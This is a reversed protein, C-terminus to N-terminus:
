QDDEKLGLRALWRRTPKGGSTAGTNDGAVPATSKQAAELSELQDEIKARDRAIRAREVSIDIEAQRLKGEWEEKLLRLKEREAAVVEDNALLQERKSEGDTGAAALQDRLQALEREKEAVVRDTTQIAEEIRLRESKAEPSDPDDAELLAMLQSKQTEWDLAGGSGIPAAPTQQTSQELQQELEAIRANAERLDALAMEHRRKFEEDGPPKNAAQEQSSQLEAKLQEVQRLLDAASTESANAASQQQNLDEALRENEQRLQALESKLSDADPRNALQSELATRQSASDELEQQLEAIRAAKTELESAQLETDKRATELQEELRTLQARTDELARNQEALERQKEDLANQARDREARAEDVARRLEGQEAAALKEIEERRTELKALEDNCRSEFEARQQELKATSDELERRQQDLEALKAQLRQERSDLDDSQKQANEQQQDLQETLEAIQRGLVDEIRAVYDRQQATFQSLRQKQKGIAEAVEAQFTEAAEQTLHEDM